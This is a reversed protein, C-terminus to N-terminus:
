PSLKCLLQLAADYFGEGSVFVVGNRARALWAEIADVMTWCEETAGVPDVELIFVQQCAQLHNMLDPYQGQLDHQRLEELAEERHAELPEHQSLHSLAVPRKGEQYHIEIRTWGAPTPQSGEPIPEVHAPKEFFWGDRVFEQVDKLFVPQASRCLVILFDPMFKGM